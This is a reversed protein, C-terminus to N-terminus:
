TSNVLGACIRAVADLEHQSDSMRRITNREGHLMRSVFDQVQVRPPINHDSAIHSSESCNGAAADSFLSFSNKDLYVCYTSTDVPEAGTTYYWACLGLPKWEYVIYSGWSRQRAAWGHESTRDSFGLIREVVVFGSWIIASV